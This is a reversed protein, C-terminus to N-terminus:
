MNHIPIAYLQFCESTLAIDMTNSLCLLYNHPNYPKNTTAFLWWVFLLDLNSLQSSTALLGRHSPSRERLWVFATSILVGPDSPTFILTVFFSSTGLVVMHKRSSNSDSLNTPSGRFGPHRYSPSHVKFEGLDLNVKTRVVRTRLTVTM